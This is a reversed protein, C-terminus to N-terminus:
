KKNTTFDIKFLKQSFTDELENGWYSEYDKMKFKQSLKHYIGEIEFNHQKSQNLLKKWFNKSFQNGEESSVIHPFFKPFYNLVIKRAFGRYSKKNLQSFAKLSYKPVFKGSNNSTIKFELVESLYLIACIQEGKLFYFSMMCHFDNLRSKFLYADHEEFSELRKCQSRIHLSELPLTAFFYSANRYEEKYGKSNTKLYKEIIKNIEIKM